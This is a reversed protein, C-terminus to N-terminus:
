DPREVDRIKILPPSHFHLIVTRGEHFHLIVTRGEHFHLIVTRGENLRAARQLRMELGRHHQGAERNSVQVRM